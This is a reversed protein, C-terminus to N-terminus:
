TFLSIEEQTFHGRVIGWFAPLEDYRSWRLLRALFRFEPTGPGTTRFRPFQIEQGDRIRIEMEVIPGYSTLRIWLAIIALLGVMSALFLAAQARELFSPITHPM